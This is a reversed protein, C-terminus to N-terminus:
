TTASGSEVSMAGVDKAVRSIDEWGGGYSKKAASTFFLIKGRFLSRRDADVVDKHVYPDVTLLHGAQKSASLWQETVLPKKAILCRLVKVTTKLPTNPVVCVYNMRSTPKEVEELGSRKLFTTLPWTPRYGSLVMKKPLETSIPNSQVSSSPVNRRTTSPAVVIEDELEDLVSDSSRAVKPLRGKRKKVPEEEVEYIDPRAAAKRKTGRRSKSESGSGGALAEKDRSSPTHSAQRSSKGYTKSNSGPTTMAFLMYDGEKTATSDNTNGPAQEQSQQKSQLPSDNPSQPESDVGMEPESEEIQAITDDASATM